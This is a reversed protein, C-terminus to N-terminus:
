ARLNGQKDAQWLRGTQVDMATLWGDGYCCTDICKLYGLDLIEGDKQSTHGVLAKKGSFHSGPRRENLSEWRLVRGPQKALPLSRIYNAHVFIHTDTEHASVCGKLFAVHEEPVDDPVVADYSALTTNGGFTLWDGLLKRKGGLIDLLMEDHNGLLPVLHCQKALEILKQITGRCDPGRDVYDGLLILTDDAQPEIVGLVTTLAALCGHIDGIAITRASMPGIM